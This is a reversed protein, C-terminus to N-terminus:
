LKGAALLAALGDAHRCHGWRSFGRCECTRGEGELHVHYKSEETEPGIKEVFFGLGFDSHVGSVFYREEKEGRPFKELIRVVANQGHENFPVCLRIFRAPKPRPKHAAPRNAIIAM